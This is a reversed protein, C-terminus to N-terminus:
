TPRLESCATNTASRIAPGLSVAQAIRGNKGRRFFGCRRNNTPRIRESVVDHGDM